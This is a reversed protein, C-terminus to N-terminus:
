AFVFIYFFLIAFLAIGLLMAKIFEKWYEM